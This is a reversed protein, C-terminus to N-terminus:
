HTATTRPIDVPVGVERTLTWRRLRFYVSIYLAVATTRPIDVPVGVERTLTWRRLRFYVSTYLAAAIKNTSLPSWIRALTM